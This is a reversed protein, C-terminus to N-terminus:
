SIVPMGAIFDLSTQAKAMIFDLEGLFRASEMVEALYPRLFVTFERLIRAIERTEAFRLEIIENELEVIESPEIYTTKGTASEDYVFGSIKRKSGTSVPILYKGDRMAVSAEPDVIGAEQAQRLIAGARRSVASEKERLQKRIDFLEDSASDKIDGYRDLIGEIRRLVEPFILIPSSLAKLNPYVGDKVSGFFNTVRRVTDLLTKLKALGLADISSGEKRLPELFPLGDIYGTTPFNEEFMLVLRMEDTLLLRKRITGKSTSFKETAVRASAYDTKCKGAIIERVKDFGLKAELRDNTM